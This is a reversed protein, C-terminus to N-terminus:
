TCIRLPPLHPNIAARVQRWQNLAKISAAESFSIATCNVITDTDTDSFSYDAQDM